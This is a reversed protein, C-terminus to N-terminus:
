SGFKLEWVERKGGFWKKRQFEVSQEDENSESGAWGSFAGVAFDSRM